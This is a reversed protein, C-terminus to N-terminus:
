DNHATERISCQLMTAALEKADDPNFFSGLLYGSLIERSFPCDSAIIPTGHLRAELLPLGFTEIYSPFILVSNSYHEFVQERSISGIFRVPLGRSKAERKLRAALSNECGSLTFDVQIGKIGENQLIALADFIVRHNKYSYPSAPYIFRRLNDATPEFSRKVDVTVSPPIIEIRSGDVGAREICARKMWETQVVVKEANRISRYIRHSILNQYAWFRPSEWLRYRRDVFPMPQHLYLIQPVTAGPVLVNQLSLIRDPRYRRILRPSTHYDFWLRHLWSKKVWPFRVVRVNGSESLEPISLVFIWENDREPDKLAVAHYDELISMAGFSAAPVDFM